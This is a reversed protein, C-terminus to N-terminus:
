SKNHRTTFMYVRIFASSFFFHMIIYARREELLRDRTNRFRTSCHLLTNYHLIRKYTCTCTRM